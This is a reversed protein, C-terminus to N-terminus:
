APIARRSLRVRRERVHRQADGRRGSRAVVARVIRRHGLEPRHFAHVRSLRPHRDRHNRHGPLVSRAAPEREGRAPQQRLEGDPACPLFAWRKSSRRSPSRGASRACGSRRLPWPENSRAPSGRADASRETGHSVSRHGDALGADARSASVAAADARGPGRQGARLGPDPHARPDESDSGAARTEKVLRVDIAATARDPIITRAGAGVHGSTLGRVNLTPVQLADQLREFAREPASVGFTKLMQEGDDPVSDLM